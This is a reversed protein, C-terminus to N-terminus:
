QKHLSMPNQKWTLRRLENLSAIEQHLNHEKKHVREKMRRCALRLFEVLWVKAIAAVKIQCVMELLKSRRDLWRKKSTQNKILELMIANSKRSRNHIIKIIVLYIMRATELLKNTQTKTTTISKSYTTSSPNHNHYICSVEKVVVRNVIVITMLIIFFRRCNLVM